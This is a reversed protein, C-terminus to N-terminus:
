QREEKVQKSEKSLEVVLTALDEIAHSLSFIAADTPSWFSSAKSYTSKNGDLYDRAVRCNLGCRYAAWEAATNPKKRKAKEPLKSMAKGGLM